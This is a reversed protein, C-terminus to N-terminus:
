PDSRNRKPEAVALDRCQVVFIHFEGLKEVYNMAFQITGKVEVSSFDGSYISMVSGSVKCFWLM